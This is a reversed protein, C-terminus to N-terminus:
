FLEKYMKVEKGKEDKKGLKSVDELIGTISHYGIFSKAWETWKKISFYSSITKENGSEFKSPANTICFVEGFHKYGMSGFPMSAVVDGHRYVRIASNEGEHPLINKKIVYEYAEFTLVRPSCFTILKVPIKDHTKDEKSNEFFVKQNQQLDLAALTSLAGGLSHGTIVIKKIDKKEKKRYIGVKKKILRKMDKQLQLYRNLFGKHVCKGDLFECKVKAFESDIWVDDKSYTGRFTIYMTGQEEGKRIIDVSGAFNDGFYGFYPSDEDVKSEQNSKEENEDSGKFKNYEEIQTDYEYKDSKEFMYVHNSYDCATKIQNVLPKKSDDNIEIKQYLKNTSMDIFTLSDNKGPAAKITSDEFEVDDNRCAGKIMKLINKVNVSKKNKMLEKYNKSERIYDGFTKGNLNEINVYYQSVGSIIDELKEIEEKEDASAIYTKSSETNILDEIADKLKKVSEFKKPEQGEISYLENVKKVLYLTERSSVEEGNKLKNVISKLANKAEITRQKVTDNGSNKSEVIKIVSFLINSVIAVNLDNKNSKYYSELKPILKDICTFNPVGTKELFKSKLSAFFGKNDSSFFSNLFSDDFSTQSNQANESSSSENNNSIYGANISPVSSVLSLVSLLTAAAKASKAGIGGVVSDLDDDCIEFLSFLEKMGTCFEEYDGEYGNKVFFDYIEEKNELTELENKLKENNLIENIMWSLNRVARVLGKRPKVIIKIFIM